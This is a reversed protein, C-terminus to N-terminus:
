KVTDFMMTANPWDRNCQLYKFNCGLNELIKITVAHIAVTMPMSTNTLFSLGNNVRINPKMSNM